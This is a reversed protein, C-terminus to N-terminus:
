SNKLKSRKRFIYHGLFALCLVLVGIFPYYKHSGEGKVSQSVVGLFVLISIVIYLVPIWPYGFARYARRENPKKIRLVFLSAITLTGTLLMAISAMEIIVSFSGTIVLVSALCAQIWLANRPTKNKGGLLAAGKWFSGDAAMAYAVRASTLITANLSTIIAISISLLVMLHMTKSGFKAAMATGADVNVLGALGDFGLVMVFAMCLLCYLMGVGFVSIFMSLPINKEPRKVEGAVYIINLWGSFAFNVFLFGSILGYFSPKEFFVLDDPTTAFVAFGAWSEIVMFFMLLVPIIIITVQFFTSVRVGLYNVFTLLVILLVSLWQALTVSVNGLLVVETDIGTLLPFQYQFLAVSMAAISGGFIAVFLVWGSAFAVSHGFAHRQFVYDGGAQPFLAGLEGCAVAGSLAYLIGIVWLLFFWGISGSYAAIAPPFLFIGVGLMSGAVVAVASVLGIVRPMKDVLEPMNGKNKRTKM